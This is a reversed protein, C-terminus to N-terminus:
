PQSRRATSASPTPRASISALTWTEITDKGKLNVPDGPEFTHLDQLRDFVSRTVHIGVSDENLSSLGRAVNVTDGWLDYIFKDRGVIGGVVLGANIGVQLSLHTGRERNFRDVIRQLQLAFEIVRNTHDPRQVSMGCVAMYTSGISKVKEVGAREAAEDFAIILDNLLMLILDPPVNGNDLGLIEAYLVTVDSYTDSVQEEDAGALLRRAAVPGPLINLLLQENERVKQELQESKARLNQVMMGFADGLEHFEQTSKIKIAVDTQGAAIRKAADTLRRVPRSFGRALLAALLTTGLVLATATALLRRGYERIPAFAEEADIKAIMAWQLGELDIPASSALVSVGRYDGSVGLFERGAIAELAPQSKSSLLLSVMGTREIADVTRPPIGIARYHAVAAIPDESMERTKSRLLHDPGVLIVEGTKGLGEKEWAKDGSLVRNINDVPYQVVLIGTMRNDEFIPTAVFAAPKNLNPRYFDFDTFKYDGQDMNKQVNRVLEGLNSQAYPGTDLNTGLEVTKQYTYVIDLTDPDVLMLDEFGFRTVLAAIAPHYARHAAAYPSDDGESADLLQGQLYPNPNKAIYWYQLHRAAFSRPYLLDFVPVAGVSAELDPLFKEKYFRTLGDDVENPVPKSELERYAESFASMARLIRPGQAGALTIDRLGDLKVQLLKQKSTRIGVLREHISAFLADRGSTYGIYGIVGIAFLCVALVLLILKAQIGLRSFM